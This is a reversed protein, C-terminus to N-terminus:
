GTRLLVFKGSLVVSGERRLKFAVFAWSFMKQGGPFKCETMALSCSLESGNFFSPSIQIEATAFCQQVM